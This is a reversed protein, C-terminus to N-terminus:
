LIVVEFQMSIASCAYTCLGSTRCCQFIHLRDVTVTASKCQKKVSVRCDIMCLVRISIYNYQLHLSELGFKHLELSCM